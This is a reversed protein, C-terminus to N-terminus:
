WDTGPVVCGDTEAVPAPEDGAPLEAEDVTGGGETAHPATPATGAGNPAALRRHVSGAVARALRARDIAEFLSSPSLNM